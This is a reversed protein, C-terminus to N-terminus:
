ETVNDLFDLLEASDQWSDLMMDAGAQRLKDRGFTAGGNETIVGAYINNKHAAEIDAPTDGFHIASAGYNKARKLAIGIIEGRDESDNGFGGFTFYHGIGLGNVKWDSFEKYNGTALGLEIGKFKLMDLIDIIGPLLYYDRDTTHEPHSNFYNFINEFLNEFKDDLERQKVGLKLMLHRMISRDTMGYMSTNLYKHYQFDHIGFTQRVAMDIAEIKLTYVEPHRRMLTGDVDFTAVKIMVDM